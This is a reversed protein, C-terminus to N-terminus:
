RDLFDKFGPYRLVKIAVVLVGIIQLLSATALMMDAGPWHQVKFMAGLIMLAAGLLFLSISQRATM